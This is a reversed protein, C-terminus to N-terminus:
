TARVRAPMGPAVRGGRLVRAYVRSWGPSHDQHFRKLDGCVFPATTACPTTYKTVELVVEDGLEVQVGPVVADWDIGSLTVNEGLAGPFVTAGEEQLAVIRELSYLCVARTPGGHVRKHAVTDGELGLEGVVAEAVARKPVGGQSVNLQFVRGPVRRSAVAESM